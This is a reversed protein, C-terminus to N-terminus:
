KDRNVGPLGLCSQCLERDNLVKPKRADIRVERVTVRRFVEPDTSEFGCKDCRISIVQKEM